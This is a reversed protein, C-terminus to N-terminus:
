LMHWESMRESMGTKRNRKSLKNAKFERTETIKQKKTKRQARKQDSSYINEQTSLKAKLFIQCCLPLQWFQWNVCYLFIIIFNAYVCKHIYICLQFLEEEEEGKTFYM